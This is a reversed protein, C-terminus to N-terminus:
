RPSMQDNSDDDEDSSDVTLDIVQAQPKDNNKSM